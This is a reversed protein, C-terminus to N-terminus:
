LNEIERLKAVEIKQSMAFSNSMRGFYNSSLNYKGHILIHPYIRKFKQSKWKDLKSPANGVLQHYFKDVM